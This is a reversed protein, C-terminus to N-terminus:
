LGLFGLPIVINTDLHMSLTLLKDRDRLQAKRENPKMRLYGAEEQHYLQLKVKVDESRLLGPSSVNGRRLTRAFIRSRARVMELQTM